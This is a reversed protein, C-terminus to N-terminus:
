FTLIFETVSDNVQINKLEFNGLSDSYVPRESANSYILAYPVREDESTLTGKIHQSFSKLSIFVILLLYFYKNIAVM